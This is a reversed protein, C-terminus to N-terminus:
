GATNQGLQALQRVVMAPKRDAPQFMAQLSRRPSKAIPAILFIDDARQEVIDAIVKSWGGVGIQGGRDELRVDRGFIVPHDFLVTQKLPDIEVVVQPQIASVPKSDRAVAMPMPRKAKVGMKGM